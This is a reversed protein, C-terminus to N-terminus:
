HGRIVPTRGDTPTKGSFRHPILLDLPVKGSAAAFSQQVLHPPFRHFGPGSRKLFTERFSAMRASLMETRPTAAIRPDIRGNAPLSEFVACAGRLCGQATFRPGPHVVDADHIVEIFLNAEPEGFFIAALASTDLIM